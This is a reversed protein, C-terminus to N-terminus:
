ETCSEIYRRVANLLYSPMDGGEISIISNPLYESGEGHPRVHIDYVCVDKFAGDGFQRDLETTPRSVKRTVIQLTGDYNCWEDDFNCECSAKILQKEKYM